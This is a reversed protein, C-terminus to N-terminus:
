RWLLDLLCSNPLVDGQVKCYLFEWIIVADQCFRGGNCWWVRELVEWIDSNELLVTQTCPHNGNEDSPPKEM